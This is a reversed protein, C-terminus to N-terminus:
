PITSDPLNILHQQYLSCLQNITHTTTAVNYLILIVLCIYQIGTLILWNYYIQRDVNVVIMVMLMDNVHQKEIMWLREYDNVRWWERSFVCVCVWADNGDVQEKTWGRHISNYNYVLFKVTVM